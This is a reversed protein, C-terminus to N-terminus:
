FSFRSKFPSHSGHTLVGIKVAESELPWLKDVCYRTSPDVETKTVIALELLALKQSWWGIITSRAM